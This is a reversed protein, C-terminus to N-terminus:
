YLRIAAVNHIKVNLQWRSAGEARARERAATMLARGVGTRRATPASVLHRVYALEGFVQSFVYGLVDGESSRAVLTSPVIVQEFQARPPPPDGTALEEFLDLFTEYDGPAAPDIRTMLM